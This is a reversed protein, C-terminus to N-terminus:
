DASMLHLLSYRVTLALVDNIVDLVVFKRAQGWVETECAAGIHLLLSDLMERTDERALIREFGSTVAPLSVHVINTHQLTAEFALRLLLRM